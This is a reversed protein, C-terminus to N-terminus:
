KGTFCPLYKNFFLILPYSILVIIITVTLPEQIFHYCVTIMAKHLCLIVITGTSITTVIINTKPIFSLLSFLALSGLLAVFYYLLVSHGFQYSHIGVRGNYLSFIIYLLSIIFAITLHLPFRINDMAINLKYYKCLYGFGVFPFSSITRQLYYGYEFSKYQYHYFICNMFICFTIVLIIGKRRKDNILLTDLILFCFFLTVLFWIVGCIPTAIEYDYFFLGLFPKIICEKFSFPSELLYLPLWFGIYCLLTFLIAPLLLRKANKKIGIRWDDLNAKHLYESIIFFAPMHFGCILIDLTHPIPCHALVVLIILLTKSYDIWIIRKIEKKM